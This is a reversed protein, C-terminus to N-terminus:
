TAKLQYSQSTEDNKDSLFYRTHNNVQRKKVTNKELLMNYTMITLISELEIRIEKYCLWTIKFITGSNNKIKPLLNKLYGM